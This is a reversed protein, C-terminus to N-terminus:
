RRKSGGSPNKSKPKPKPKPTSKPVSKPKGLSAPKQRHTTPVSKRPAVKQTGASKRTPSIRKAPATKGKLTKPEIKRNTQPTSRGGGWIRSGKNRPSVPRVATKNGSGVAGPSVKTRSEGAGTVSGAPRRVSGGGISPKDFRIGPSRNLDAGKIGTFRDPRRDISKTNRYRDAVSTKSATKSVISRRETMAATMKSTPRASKVMGEPNRYRVDAALTKYRLGKSIPRYRQHGRQYTVWIDGRWYPSYNWVYFDYDWAHVSVGPFAYWPRYWYNIWPRMTWPDVYYYVPYYYTPFYGYRQYWDNSWGYDHHIEVLCTDRYPHYDDADEHCQGCLYRPHDVVRGVYYSIYNTAVYDEPDELGTIAFNVDNMALFPDGAVYYAFKVESPEHHFDVELNRLDFPYASVLADIYEVGDSDAARIRPAGPVPLNYTHNGFVFGDDYRSRPWLLSVEGDADIRYVVVYAERNVEFHVRIPDNRRYIEDDERDHWLNVRLPQSEYGQWTERDLVQEPDQARAVAFCMVLSLVGLLVMPVIRGHLSGSGRAADGHEYGNEIKRSM